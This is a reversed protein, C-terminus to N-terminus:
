VVYNICICIYSVYTYIWDLGIRYIHYMHIYMHVRSLSICRRDGITDCMKSISRWFSSFDIPNLTFSVGFTSLKKKKSSGWSPCYYMCIHIYCICVQEFHFLQHAQQQVQSSITCSFVLKNVLWNESWYNYSYVYEKLLKPLPPPLAWLEDTVLDM